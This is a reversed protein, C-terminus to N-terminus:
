AISGASRPLARSGTLDELVVRAKFEPKFPEDGQM